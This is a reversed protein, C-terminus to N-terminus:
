RCVDKDGIRRIAETIKVRLDSSCSAGFKEIALQYYAKADRFRGLIENLYGAHALFCCAKDKGGLEEACTAAQQCEIIAEDLRRAYVLNRILQERASIERNKCGEQIYIAIAERRATVSEELNAAPDRLYEHAHQHALSVRELVQAEGLRDKLRSFIDRATQYAELSRALNGLM